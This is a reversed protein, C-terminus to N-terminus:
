IDGTIIYNDAEKMNYEDDQLLIDDIQAYLSGKIDKLLFSRQFDEEKDARVIFEGHITDFEYDLGYFMSASLLFPHRTVPNYPIFFQFPKYTIKGVELKEIEYVCGHCEGGFGGFSVGSKKLEAKFALKVVEEPLSFVPIMAGTDIITDINNVKVIPRMYNESLPLSFQTM